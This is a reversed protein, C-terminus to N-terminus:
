EFTLLKERYYAYQKERLTILRELKSIYQEFDDLTSVISRQKEESQIPIYIKGLGEKSFSCIKGSSVYSKLQQHYINSRLYYSIYMPNQKHKLIYCADHVAVPEDGMWVLGVGIDYDNEGAGVIVIDGKQAYSMKKPFDKDIYTKTKDCKTGYYTYMDGYHICPQGSERVDDRVFRRGRTISGLDSFQVVSIGPTNALAMMGGFDGGYLKDCYYEMQKKRLEVEQKMKDILTTFSDLVSVIERQITLPPLPIELTLISYMSPHKIGAGRYFKSITKMNDLLVYYLYKNSLKEADTSTAIRNDGTIFRGKYYKVSPTGGWPIAIVEGESIYNGAKEETTYAIEETTYLIRIDGSNDKIEELDKALLYKYKNISKQMSKDVANFKKDWATYRWVPVREVGNPCLRKIMEEIKSM